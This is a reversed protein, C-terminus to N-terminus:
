CLFSTASFLVVSLTFVNKPVLPPSLSLVFHPFTSSFLLFSCFIFCLSLSQLFHDFFPHPPVPLLFFLSLPFSSIFLLLSLTPPMTPLPFPPQTTTHVKIVYDLRALCVRVASVCEQLQGQEQCQFVCICIYMCVYLILWEMSVSVCECVTLTGTWM